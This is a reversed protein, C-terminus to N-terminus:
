LRAISAMAKKYRAPPRDLASDDYNCPLECATSCPAHQLNTYVYEDTSSSTLSNETNDPPDPIPQEYGKLHIDEKLHENDSDTVETASSSAGTDSNLHPDSSGWDTSISNRSQCSPSRGVESPVELDGEDELDRM